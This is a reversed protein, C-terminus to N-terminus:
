EDSGKASIQTEMFSLTKALRSRYEHGLYGTRLFQRLSAAPVQATRAVGAINLFDARLQKALEKSM